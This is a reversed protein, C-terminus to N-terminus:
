IKILKANIIKRIVRRSRFGVHIQWMTFNESEDHFM